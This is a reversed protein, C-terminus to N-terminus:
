WCTSPLWLPRLLTSLMTLLLQAPLERKLTPTECNGRKPLLHFQNWSIPLCDMWSGGSKSPAGALERGTVNSVVLMFRGAAVERFFARSEKEFEVDFCGGFVSTDAYVRLRKM